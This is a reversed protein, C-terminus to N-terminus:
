HCGRKRVSLPIGCKECTVLVLPSGETDRVAATHIGRNVKCPNEKGSTLGTEPNVFEGEGAVEYGPPDAKSEKAM